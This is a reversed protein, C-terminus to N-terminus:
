WIKELEALFREVQQATGVTVRVCGAIEYSRDRVLVSVARLKDRVEISRDGVHFLVFNAQSPYYRIGLREFGKYMSQRSALIKKVYGAVYERDQITSLITAYTSPRGIGKEELTKVLSPETNIVATASTLPFVM